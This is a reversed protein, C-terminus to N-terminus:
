GSFSAIVWIALRFIKSILRSFRAGIKIKDSGFVSGWNYLLSQRSCECLLPTKIYGDRVLGCACFNYTLEVIENDKIVTFSIEPFRAKLRFLYEELNQSSQYEDIYIQRTYSDSCSKGCEKFISERAEDDLGQISREFGEFWYKLFPDNM